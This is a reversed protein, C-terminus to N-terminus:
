ETEVHDVTFVQARTSAFARAPVRNEFLVDLEAFTRGKIEPLRFFVWVWALFTFGAWFFATKGQWKWGAPSIMYTTLTGNFVSGIHYANRGLIATKNRLRTSPVEFSVVYSM